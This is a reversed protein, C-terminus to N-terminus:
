EEGGGEANAKADINKGVLEFLKGGVGMFVILKLLGLSILSIESPGFGDSLDWGRDEPTMGHTRALALVDTLIFVGFGALAGLKFLRTQASFTRVRRTSRILSRLGSLMGTGMLFAGVAVVVAVFFDPWRTLGHTLHLLAFLAVAGGGFRPWYREFDVGLGEQTDPPGGPGTDFDPGRRDPPEYWGEPVTPQESKEVRANAQAYSEEDHDDWTRKVASFRKWIRWGVVFLFSYWLFALSRVFLSMGSLSGDTEFLGERAFAALAIFGIVGWFVYREVDHKRDTGDMLLGDLL